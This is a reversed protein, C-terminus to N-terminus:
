LKEVKIKPLFEEIVNLDIKGTEDIMANSMGCAM